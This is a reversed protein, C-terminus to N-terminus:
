PRPWPTEPVPTLPLGDRFWSVLNDVQLKGMANRTFQSASAVHPLLVVNDMTLLDEPVHPEDHFVDLGASMITGDKLAKILATEDVTSGRGINILIGDPGLAEFIESGIARRTADGGPAACLLIDCHSALERLSACYPYRVDRVRNRNHYCIEMNMAEARKAIALGIRGLGFIGLRKSRLTGRTLPYSGNWNGDRLWREAASLERATMIMLGIAVDAVEETLVDPTNTVIIKHRAAYSVDINDYGVGFNAIIELGPLKKILNSHVSANPAAAIARIKEAVGVPLSQIDADQLLRHCVFSKSFMEEASQSFSGAILIDADNM